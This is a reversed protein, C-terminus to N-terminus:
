SPDCRCQAGSTAVSIGEMTVARVPVRIEIPAAPPGNLRLPSSEWPECGIREVAIRWTGATPVRITALGTADSIAQAAIEDNGALPQILASQVAEGTEATVRIALNFVVDQQASAGPVLPLAVGASAVLVFGYAGGLRVPGRSSLPSSRAIGFMGRTAGRPCAM